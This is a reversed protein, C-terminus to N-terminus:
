ELSEEVYQMKDEKRAENLTPILGGLWFFFTIVGMSAALALAAGLQTDLFYGIKGLALIGTLIALWPFTGRAEASRITIVGISGVGLTYLLVFVVASLQEIIITMRLFQAELETSGLNAIYNPVFQYIIVLKFIYLAVVLCAGLISTVLPLILWNRYKVTIRSYLYIFIGIMSPIIFIGMLLNFVSEATHILRNDYYSQIISILDEIPYRYSIVYSLVIVVIACLIIIINTIMTILKFDLKPKKNINSM